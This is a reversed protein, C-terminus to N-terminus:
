VLASGTQNFYWLMLIIQSRTLHVNRFIVGLVMLVKFIRQPHSNTFHKMHM